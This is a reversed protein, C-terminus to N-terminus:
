RSLEMTNGATMVWDQYRLPGTTIRVSSSSATGSAAAGYPVGDILTSLYGTLTDGSLTGSFGGNFGGEVQARVQMGEQAITAHVAAPAAGPVDYRITGTWSGALNV